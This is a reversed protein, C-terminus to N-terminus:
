RRVSATDVVVEATSMVLLSLITRKTTVVVVFTASILTTPLITEIVVVVFEVSVLNISLITLTEVIVTAVRTVFLILNTRIATVVVVIEVM